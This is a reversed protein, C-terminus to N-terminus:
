RQRGEWWERVLELFDDLLMTVTATERDDKCVAIPIRGKPAAEVAQRLAARINTRRHRKSEVWFVPCEVDAADEGSRSQLGRRVDADPMVERFRHVTAREFAAGKRRSMAGSM